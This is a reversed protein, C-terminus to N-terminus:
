TGTLRTAARQRSLDEQPLLLSRRSDFGSVGFPINTLPLTFIGGLAGHKVALRINTELFCYYAQQSSSDPRRGGNRQHARQGGGAAAAGGRGERFCRACIRVDEGTNTSESCAWIYTLM